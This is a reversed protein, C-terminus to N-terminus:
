FIAAWGVVQGPQTRRHDASVLHGAAGGGHGGGFARQQDAFVIRAFRGGAALCQGVAACALCVLGIVRGGGRGFVVLHFHGAWSRHCLRAGFDVGGLAGPLYGAFQAFVSWHGAAGDLGQVARAQRHGHALPANEVPDWFWWGGWGLEYYAWWSGLAIGLTLFGWAAVTWPRAWRAWAADLRGSLLAAVAFAFAVSLGVYGMYLMPPHIVLGPDQLLPTLDRGEVPAPFQRAFPNSLALIFALFGVSVAGMVGLVQAVLAQPLHRSFTAVAVSWLALMLVWLLLSGEHGAWIASLRYPAPLLTNSHHAVYVVSFDYVYFAQWLALFSLVILILQLQALPRALRQWSARRTSLSGWLPLVAQALAVWAAMILALLGAEPWM